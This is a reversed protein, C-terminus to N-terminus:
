RKRQFYILFTPAARKGSTALFSASVDELGLRLAFDHIQKGQLKQMTRNLPSQLSTEDDKSLPAGITGAVECLSRGCTVRLANSPGGIFQIGSIHDRLERETRAAWSTDRGEARLRAYLRDPGNETPPIPGVIPDNIASDTVETQMSPQEAVLVVAAIAPLFVLPMAIRGKWGRSVIRTPEDFPAGPGFAVGTENDRNEQLRLARAVERSSGLGTKRRAERLRENVAATTFGTSNAISKATHGEALLRLVRREAENLQSLDIARGGGFHHADKVFSAM